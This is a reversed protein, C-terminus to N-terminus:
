EIEKGLQKLMWMDNFDSCCNRENEKKRKAWNEWFGSPPSISILLWNAGLNKKLFEIGSYASLSLSLSSQSSFLPPPSPFHLSHFNGPQNQGVDFLHPSHSNLCTCIILRSSCFCCVSMSPDISTQRLDAWITSGTNYNTSSPDQKQTAEQGTM